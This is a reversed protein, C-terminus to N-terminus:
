DNEVLPAIVLIIESDKSQEIIKIPYDTKIHFELNETLETVAHLMPQGFRSTVGGKCSAIMFEHHFKFKGTNVIKLRGEETIFKIETDDNLKIDDLIEHLKDAELIFTDDFTLNLEKENSTIFSVDMLEVEVKKGSQSVTLLNGETKLTVEEGFREIIKILNPLEGIGIKGIEQYETFSLRKLIGNVRSFAAENSANVRLGEECFNFICENVQQSKTMMVKRLFTILIKTKIKMKFGGRINEM